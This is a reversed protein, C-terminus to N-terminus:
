HGDSNWGVYKAADSRVQELGRPITRPITRPIPKVTARQREGFFAILSDTSQLLGSEVLVM